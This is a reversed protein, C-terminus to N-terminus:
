EKKSKRGLFPSSVPTSQPPLQPPTLLQATVGGVGVGDGVGIGAGGGVGGSGGAGGTETIASRM